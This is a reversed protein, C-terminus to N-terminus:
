DNTSPFFYSPPSLVSRDLQNTSPHFYLRSVIMALCLGITLVTVIIYAIPMNYEYGGTPDLVYSEVYPM